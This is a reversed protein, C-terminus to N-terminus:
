AAATTITHWGTSLTEVSKKVYMVYTVRNWVFTGPRAKLVGEPNGNYERVESVIPPLTSYDKVNQNTVAM